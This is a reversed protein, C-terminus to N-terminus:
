PAVTLQGTVGPHFRCYYAIQGARGLVVKGNAGPKLDVDFSGDNATASHEFMDHNAWVVTDGVHLDAPAAGFALQDVVIV